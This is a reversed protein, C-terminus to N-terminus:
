SPSTSHVTGSRHPPGIRMVFINGSAQVAASSAAQAASAGRDAGPSVADLPAMGPAGVSVGLLSRVSWSGAAGARSTAEGTSSERGSGVGVVERGLVERRGAGTGAAAGAGAGFGTASIEGTADATTGIGLRGTVPTSAWGTSSSLAAAPEPRSSAGPLVTVTIGADAPEEVGTSASSEQDPGRGARPM